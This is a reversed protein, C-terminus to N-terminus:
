ARGRLATEVVEVALENVQDWDPGAPLSSRDVAEEARQFQRNAEAKVRELPWEGHKIALL